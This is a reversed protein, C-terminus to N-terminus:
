ELRGRWEIELVPEAGGLAGVGAPQIEQRAVEVQFVGRGIIPFESDGIRPRHRDLLLLWRNLGFERAQFVSRSRRSAGVARWPMPGERRDVM